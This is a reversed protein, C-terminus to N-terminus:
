KNVYEERLLGLIIEDRYKGDRFFVQRRKGEQKFQFRKHLALSRDNGEVVSSSIRNLNLHSFAYNIILEYSKTGFKKEHYDKNVIAIGITASKSIWNIRHLGCTGIFVDKNDDNHIIAFVIESDSDSVSEVWKIEQQRTMPLTRALCQNIEQNNVFKMLDDIDNMDLPRLFIDKGHLM